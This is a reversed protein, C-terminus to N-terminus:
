IFKFFKKKKLLIKKLNGIQACGISAHLNSMRFNYGVENHVFNMADDKAQTSLYLAKEAFRKSNTVIM